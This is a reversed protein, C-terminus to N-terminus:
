GPKRYVSVHQGSSETFPRRDYWGWRNELELDALRAMLDMESPWAYRVSVPLVVTEGTALRRVVHTDSRQEIPHHISMEYAHEENSSISSVEMRSNHDDWRKVDPFFTDLVFRGGPELHDAVNRFCDIQREQTLLVFLTNFGLFVLPYTGEVGVDAFDGVVVDIGEGGDKAKLKAVMDESIDIGSVKVGEQAVPLAVRGTGIALELMRPPRGALATLFEVTATDVDSYIDDYYEAWREGYTKEDYQSM